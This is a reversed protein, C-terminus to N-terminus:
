YYVVKWYKIEIRFIENKFDKIYYYVMMNKYFLILVKRLWFFFILFKWKIIWLMLVKCKVIWGYIMIMFDDVSGLIMLDLILFVISYFCLFYFMYKNVNLIEM